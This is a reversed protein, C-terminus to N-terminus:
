APRPPVILTATTVPARGADAQADGLLKTTPRDRRRWEEIPVTRDPRPPPLRSSAASPTRAESDFDVDGVPTRDLPRRGPGRRARDPRADEHGAGADFGEVREELDCGLLPVRIMATFRVPVNLQTWAATGSMSAPPQPRITVMEDDLACDPAGLM